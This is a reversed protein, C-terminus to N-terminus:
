ACNCLPSFARTGATLNYVCRHFNNRKLQCSLSTNPKDAKSKQCSLKNKKKKRKIIINIYVSTYLKTLSVNINCYLFSFSLNNNLKILTQYFHIIKSQLKIFM